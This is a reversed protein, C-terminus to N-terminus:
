GSRTVSRTARASCCSAGRQVRGRRTAHGRRCASPKGSGCRCRSTCTRSETRRSRRQRPQQDVPHPLPPPPPPSLLLLPRGMMNPREHTPRCALAAPQATRIQAALLAWEADSFLTMQAGHLHYGLHLDRHLGFEPPPTSPSNSSTSPFQQRSQRRFRGIELALDPRSDSVEKAPM